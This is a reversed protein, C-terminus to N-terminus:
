TLHAVCRQCERACHPNGGLAPWQCTQTRSSRIRTRCARDRRVDQRHPRGATSSDGSCLARAILWSAQQRCRPPAATRETTPGWGGAGGCWRSVVRDRTAADFPYAAPQCDGRCSVRLNAPHPMYPLPPQPECCARRSAVTSRARVSWPNGASGDGDLVPIAPWGALVPCLAIAAKDLRLGRLEGATDPGSVGGRADTRWCQYVARVCFSAVPLSWTRAACPSPTPLCRRKRRRGPRGAETQQRRLFRGRVHGDPAGSPITQRRRDGLSRSCASSRTARGCGSSHAKPRWQRCVGAQRGDLSLAFRSRM